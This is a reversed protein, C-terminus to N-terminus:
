HTSQTRKKSEHIKYPVLTLCEHLGFREDVLIMQCMKMDNVKLCTRMAIASSTIGNMGDELRIVTPKTIASRTKYMGDSPNQKSTAIPM